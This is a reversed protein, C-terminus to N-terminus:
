NLLDFDQDQEFAVVSPKQAGATLESVRQGVYNKLESVIIRGDQNWDAKKDRLGEIVSATFVGNNWQDSELAFQAGASAGIINVGRITGPLAFMEEIFRQKDSASFDAAQQVKMGRQAVARVGSPLKTDMQALLIEDKEGVVGAHCTDLLILRRLAKASSVANVLDDLKIGTEAPRDSDFDHGAFYYDLKDDLVGHGACFLIVEDSETAKSVFERIKDVVSQDVQSDTLLLVHDSGKVGESGGFLKSLIGGGVANEGALAVLLDNADKAAFQLNLEPKAYDSVGLAIIYRKTDTPSDKLITRFRQLDSRRGEVDEATVEIWNQGKALKVAADVSGKNETAAPLVEGEFRASEVGNVRVIVRRVPAAGTQWEIPFQVEDSEAWLPPREPVSVKPLDSAKPEPKTPDFGIRKHWRETVKVLVEIQEPDGGLAKLVEAPRNRWQAISSADVSGDSAKLRLLSECGPSGAYSGNPLLVAYQDGKGLILDFRKTPKGQWVSWVEFGAASPVFLHGSSEDLLARGLRSAFNWSRLSETRGSALSVSDLTVTDGSGYLVRAKDGEVRVALPDANETLNQAVIIPESQGTERELVVCSAAGGTSSDNVYSCARWGRSIKSSVFGDYAFHAGGNWPVGFEAGSSASFRQFQPSELHHQSVIFMDAGLDWDAVRNYENKSLQSRLFDPIQIAYFNTPSNKDLRYFTDGRRYGISQDSFNLRRPTEEFMTVWEQMSKPSELLDLGRAVRRLASPDNEPVETVTKHGSSFLHINSGGICAATGDDFLHPAFAGSADVNHHEALLDGLKLVSLRGSDGASLLVGAKESSGNGVAFQGRSLAAVTAANPEVGLYKLGSLDAKGIELHKVQNEQLYDPESRQGSLEAFQVKIGQFADRGVKAPLYNKSLSPDVLISISSGEAKIQVRNNLALWYDDSVLQLRELAKTRLDVLTLAMPCDDYRYKAPTVNAVYFVASPGHGARGVSFVRNPVSVTAVLRGGRADFFSLETKANGATGPLEVARVAYEDDAYALLGSSDSDLNLTSNETRDVFEYAWRQGSSNFGEVIQASNGSRQSTALRRSISTLEQLRSEVLSKARELSESKADRLKKQGEVYYDLRELQANRGFGYADLDMDRNQEWNRQDQRVKKGHIPDKLVQTLVAELERNLSELSIDQSLAKYIAAGDAEPLVGMCVRRARSEIQNLEGAISAWANPATDQHDFYLKQLVYLARWHGVPNDPSMQRYMALAESLMRDADADRNGVLFDLLGIYYTAEARRNPDSSTIRWQEALKRARQLDGLAVLRDIEAAEAAPASFAAIQSASGTGVDGAAYSKALPYSAARAKALYKGFLDPNKRVGHGDNLAMAYNFQAPAYGMDAAKKYLAAADRRREDEPTDQGVVKGQFIMIAASTISYPDQADYLANFSASQLALGQQEDKPVGEGARLLAGLRFKGLPHGANASAAAYRAALEPNKETNWGLQYHLAVVAQAFADGADARQKAQEFSLVQAQGQVTCAAVLLLGLRFVKYGLPFKM